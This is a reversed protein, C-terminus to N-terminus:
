APSPAGPLHARGRSFKEIEAGGAQGGFQGKVGKV